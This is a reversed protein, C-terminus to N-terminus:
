EPQKKNIPLYFYFTSGKGPSSEIDIKGGHAKVIEKVLTLGIGSGKIDHTQKNGARYFREFIKGQEEASIGIGYDRISTVISGNNQEASLDIVKSNGSYKVANNLLNDLAQEIAQADVPVDPLGAQINLNIQFGKSGMRKQYRDVIEQILGGINIEEFVYSKKGREIQSFDLINDILHTLRAGQQLMVSYYKERREPPVRGSQFMETIQRIATLPSKFEHSVTAVFDSKMRTIQLERNVSYMIFLLGVILVAGIFLFMFFYIGQGSDFFTQLPSLPKAFAFMTWVPLGAPFSMEVFETNDIREDAEVLVEGRNNQLLWYWRGAESVSQLQPKVYHNLLGEASLLLCWHGNNNDPIISILYDLGGSEQHMRKGTRIEYASVRGPLNNGIQDYDSLLNRTEEQLIQQKQCLSDFQTLLAAHHTSPHMKLEQLFELAKSAFLSYSVVDLEWNQSILNELLRFQAGLAGTTDGQALLLKTLESDAILGMPMAKNIRYDGYDRSLLEYSEAAADLAGNKKHLRAISNLVIARSYDDSLRNMQQQYYTLARKNDRDQFEYKWGTEFGSSVKVNLKQGSKIAYKPLFQLRNKLMKVKDADVYFIGRVV